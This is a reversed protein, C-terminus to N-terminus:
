VLDDRIFASEHGAAVSEGPGSEASWEALSLTPSISRM